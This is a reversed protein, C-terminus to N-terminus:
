EMQLVTPTCSENEGIIVGGVGQGSADKIGVFHPCGSVLEICKTPTLTYKHLLTSCYILAILLNDSHHLFVLNLEKRLIANYPALMGEGIPISIFAHRMKAIVSCFYSFPIGDSGSKSARILDKTVTVHGDRNSAEIWTTKEIVDFMFGWIDKHALCMAELKKLKKLTVTDEKANENSHLIDHIGKIVTAAVYVLHDWPTPFYLSIYDDVYVKILYSFASKVSTKPLTEFYKGQAAHDIVKHDPLSGIPTEM